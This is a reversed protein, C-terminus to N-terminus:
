LPMSQAVPRWAADASNPPDMGHKQWPMRWATDQQAAAVHGHAAVESCAYASDIWGANRAHHGRGLEALFGPLDEPADPATLLEAVDHGIGGTGIVAVRDGVKVRGLIVDTYGVVKSHGSGAFDPLRPRVGTAVVVRDFREWVLADADARQGLRVDVGARQLRQRFYRLLENFEQEKGPIRRALDLQGGITRSAEFLVVKHGREAATAACAMGAPGAGVVAVRLM